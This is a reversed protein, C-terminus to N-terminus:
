SYLIVDNRNSIDIPPQSNKLTLIAGLQTQEFKPLPSKMQPNPKKKITTTRKLNQLNQAYYFWKKDCSM